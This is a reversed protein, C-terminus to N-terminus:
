STKFEIRKLSNMALRFTFAGVIIGMAEPFGALALLQAVSAPMASMNSQIYNNLQTMVADLGVYTVVSLGLSLMIQSIIPKVMGMLFAAINM